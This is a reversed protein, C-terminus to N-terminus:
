PTDGDYRVNCTVELEYNYTPTVQEIEAGVFKAVLAGETGNVFRNYAVLDEFWAAVNGAYRRM